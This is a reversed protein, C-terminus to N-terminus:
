ERKGWGLGGSVSLSPALHSNDAMRLVECRGQSFRLQSIATNDSLPVDLFRTLPWGQARCLLCRLACGHTTLCVTNGNPREERAAIRQVAEWMRDAVQQMTEGGPAAFNWPQTQWAKAAEPFERPFDDWRMGDVRGMNIEILGPEKYIPKNHYQNIAQATKRARQLPSTYFATFPVNRLRAAVLELQTRGLPVIDSDVRGQFTGDVNGQAACHRVLYLEVM